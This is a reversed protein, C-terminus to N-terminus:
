LSRASANAIQTYFNLVKQTTAVLDFHEKAFNRAANSIEARKEANLELEKLISVCESPNRIIFGHQGHKIEIGQFAVPTGMVIKGMAMAEIIKVRLGSGSKLPVLMYQFSAMWNAADEVEAEIHLNEKAQKLLMSPMNKGALHLSFHPLAAKIAPWYTNIILEVAEINPQWSMAALHFLTNPQQQPLCTHYQSLDIGIAASIAPTHVVKRIHDLDHTSLAILGDVAKWLKEETKQLARAIQRYLISKPFAAEQALREWIQYEVNHERFILPINLPRLKFAYQAMYIGELHILHFSQEKTLQQVRSILAQRYFRHLQYNKRKLVAEILGYMSFRTDLEICEIEFQRLWAPAGELNGPHKSTDFCLLKVKIGAHYLGHLLNFNALAGGDRVPYPFRNCLFLINM